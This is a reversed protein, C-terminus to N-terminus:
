RRPSLSRASSPASRAPWRAVNVEHRGPQLDMLSAQALGVFAWSAPSIVMFGLLLWAFGPALAATGLGAVFALGGIIM